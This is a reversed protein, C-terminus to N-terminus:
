LSRPIELEQEYQALVLLHSLTSKPAHSSRTRTRSLFPDGGVVGATALTSVASNDICGGLASGTPARRCFSLGGSPPSRTPESIHNLLTADLQLPRRRGAPQQIHPARGRRIVQASRKRSAFLFPAGFPAGRNTQM